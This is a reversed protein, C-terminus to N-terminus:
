TAEKRSPDAHISPRASNHLSSEGYIDTNQPSERQNLRVLGLALLGCLEIRREQASMRDPQLANPRKM